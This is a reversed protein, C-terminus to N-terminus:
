QKTLLLKCDSADQIFEMDALSKTGRAIAEGNWTLSLLSAPENTSIVLGDNIPTGSYLFHLVM